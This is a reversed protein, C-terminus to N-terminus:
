PLRGDIHDLSLISDEDQHRQWANIWVTNFGCNLAGVEQNGAAAHQWSLQPSSYDVTEFQGLSTELPADWQRSAAIRRHASRHHVAADKDGKLFRPRETASASIM